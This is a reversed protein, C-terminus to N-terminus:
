KDDPQFTQLIKPQLCQTVNLQDGKFTKKKKKKKKKNFRDGEYIKM